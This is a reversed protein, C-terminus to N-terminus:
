PGVGSSAARSSNCHSDSACSRKAATVAAAARAVVIYVRGSPSRLTGELIEGHDGIVAAHTLELGAGTQPCALLEVDDRWM